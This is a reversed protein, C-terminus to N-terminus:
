QSLLTFSFIITREGDEASWYEDEFDLVAAAQEM